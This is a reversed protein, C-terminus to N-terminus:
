PACRRPRLALAGTAARPALRSAEVAPGSCRSALVRRRRLGNPAAPAGRVGMALKGDSQNRLFPKLRKKVIKNKVVPTVM